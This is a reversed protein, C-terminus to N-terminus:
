KENKLKSLRFIKGTELDSLMKKQEDTMSDRLKRNEIESMRAYQIDRESLGGSDMSPSNWDRIGGTHITTRMKPFKVTKTNDRIIRGTSISILTGDPCQHIDPIIHPLIDLSNECGM